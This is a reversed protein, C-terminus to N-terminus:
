AMNRSTDVKTENKAGKIDDLDELNQAIRIVEAMFGQYAELLNDYESEDVKELPFKKDFQNVNWSIQQVQRLWNRINSLKTYYAMKNKM